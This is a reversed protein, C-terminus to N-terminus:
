INLKRHAIPISPRWLSPLTTYYAPRTFWALKESLADILPLDFLSLRLLRDRYVAFFSTFNANENKTYPYPAEEDHSKIIPLLIANFNGQQEVCFLNKREEKGLAAVKYSHLMTLGIFVVIFAARRQDRINRFQWYM